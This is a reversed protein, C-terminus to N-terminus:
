PFRDHRDCGTRGARSSDIHVCAHARTGRYSAIQHTTWRRLGDHVPEQRAQSDRRSGGGTLVKQKVLRSSYLVAVSPQKDIKRYLVPQTYGPDDGENHGHRRYCVMDIVVDKKFEQRFDFALQVARIAAEPDDGNVHFIPAQVMRAVDTTHTMSRSGNPLTTFGIQNNIILHVTGGTSYGELQSLNLTEPVVGQGAFAADGHILVPIIRARATDGLADQKPRVMGEVVPDVAELHSPNPVLQVEIEKGCFTKRHGHAGLHYKVDGSGHATSTDSNGEFEAFIENLPKGITNALMNLRGRHAMGVIVEVAGSDAARSM